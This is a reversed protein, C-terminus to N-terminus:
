RRSNLEQEIREIERSLHRITNLEVIDDSAKEVEAYAINLQKIYAGIATDENEMDAHLSQYLDAQEQLSAMMSMYAMGLRFDYSRYDELTKLKGKYQKDLNEFTQAYRLLSESFPSQIDYDKILVPIVEIIRLRERDYALLKDILYRDNKHTKTVISNLTKMEAAYEDRLKLLQELTMESLRESRTYGPVPKDIIPHPQPQEAVISQQMLLLALLSVLCLKPGSQRNNSSKLFRFYQTRTNNM